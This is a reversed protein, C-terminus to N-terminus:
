APNLNIVFRGVPAGARSLFVNDRNPKRATLDAPYRDCNLAWTDLLFIRGIDEPNAANDLENPKGGWSAGKEYRSIFAPGPSALKGSALPIEDNEGVDIIAFEFTRLGLVKALNTGVWECALAHPGSKNGLAKLYGRGEDTEVLVTETATAVSKIFRRIVKPQWNHRSTAM